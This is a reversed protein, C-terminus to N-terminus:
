ECQFLSTLSHKSAHMFEFIPCELFYSIQQVLFVLALKADWILVCFDLNVRYTLRSFVQTHFFSCLKSVVADILSFPCFIGICVYELLWSSNIGLNESFM